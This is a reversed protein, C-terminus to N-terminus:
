MPIGLPLRTFLVAIYALVLLATFPAAFKHYTENVTVAAIVSTVIFTLHFGLDLPKPFTGYLVLSKAISIVLLLAAMTFFWRHNDFYHRRLDVTEGPVVDPFVLGALLYLPVTEALVVAFGFFSWHPYANLDYMAWWAQVDIVLLIIAWTVCPWYSRLRTRALMLSRFGQLIQTIALGLVISLLVSLYSFADM